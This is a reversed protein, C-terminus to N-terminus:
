IDKMRDDWVECKGQIESISKCTKLVNKQSFFGQVGNNDFKGKSCRCTSYLEDNLIMESGLLNNCLVCIGAM